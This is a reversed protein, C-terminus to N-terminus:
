KESEKTDEKLCWKFFFYLGIVLSIALLYPWFKMILGVVAVVGLLIMFGCLLMDLDNM